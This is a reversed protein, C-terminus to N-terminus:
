LEHHDSSMEKMTGRIQSEDLKNPSRTVLDALRGEKHMTCHIGLRSGFPLKVVKGRFFRSGLFNRVERQRICGVRALGRPVGPNLKNNLYGWSASTLERSIPAAKYPIFGGVEKNPVFLAPGRGSTFCIGMRCQGVQGAFSVSYRTRFQWVFPINRAGGGEVLTIGVIFLRAAQRKRREQNKNREPPPPKSVCTCTSYNGQMIM